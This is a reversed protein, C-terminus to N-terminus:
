QTDAYKGHIDSCSEEQNDQIALTTLPDTTATANTANSWATADQSLNYAPLAEGNTSLATQPAQVEGDGTLNYAPLGTATEVAISGAIVPITSTNLVSVNQSFNYPPLEGQSEAPVAQPAAIAAQPAAIAAEPAPIAVQPAAVAQSVASDIASVM